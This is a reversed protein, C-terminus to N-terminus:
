IKKKTIIVNRQNMYESLNGKNSFIDDEYDEKIM